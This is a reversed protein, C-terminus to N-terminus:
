SRCGHGYESHSSPRVQLLVGEAERLRCDLNEVNPGLVNFAVEMTNKVDNSRATMESDILGHTDTIFSKYNAIDTDIDHVKKATDSIAADAYAISQAHLRQHREITDLRGDIEGFAAEVELLRQPGLSRATLTRPPLSAGSASGRDRSRVRSRSVQEAVMIFGSSRARGSDFAGAGPHANQLGQILGNVRGQTTTGQQSVAMPTGGPSVSRPQAAM